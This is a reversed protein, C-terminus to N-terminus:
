FTIFDTRLGTSYVQTVTLANLRQVLLEEIVEENKRPVKKPLDCNRRGTLAVPTRQPGTEEEQGSKNKGAEIELTFEKQKQGTTYGVSRDPYEKSAAHAKIQKTALTIIYKAAGGVPGGEYQKTDITTAFSQTYGNIANATDMSQTHCSTFNSTSKSSTTPITVFVGISNKAM